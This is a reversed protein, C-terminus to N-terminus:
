ENIKRRLLLLKEWLFTIQYKFPNIIYDQTPLYAIKEGGFGTKFLTLGQWSKPTRQNEEDYIGWFNYYSCGRKKAEKIAEWQLLYTAPVKTHLSAGQHYFATSKTFIILASAIPIKEVGCKEAGTPTSAESRVEWTAEFHTDCNNSKNINSFLFLANGTKKFAAFEKKIYEKSFPVFNERRATEEYIQYFDDVAQEDLRKEVNVNERIAKKILYRTTKRMNALIVEEASTLPLQWITEAHMYIPATKFGLQKFILQNQPTNILIPAIRILSYGEKKAIKELYNILAKIIMKIKKSPTKPKFLPGHPIFLFNGRKAKIKIVQAIAILQQDDYIGTRITPYGLSEQFKGWEWSQLFTPSDVLNFFRDWDKKQNIEKIKM